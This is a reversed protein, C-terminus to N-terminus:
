GVRQDKGPGPRASGARLQTLLFRPAPGDGMRQPVHVRPRDERPKQSQIEAGGTDRGCFSRWPLVQGRQANQFVDAGPSPVELAMVERLVALGARLLVCYWRRM